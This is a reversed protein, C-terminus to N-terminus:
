IFSNSREYVIKYSNNLLNIFTNKQLKEEEFEQNTYVLIDIPIMSGILSKQIEISRKHRPLDSNKIIILDLDSNQNANGTAFSGFILIKDPDFNNSIKNVVNQIQYNEIM